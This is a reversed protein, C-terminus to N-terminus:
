PRPAGRSLVGDVGLTSGARGLMLVPFVLLYALGAQGTLYPMSFMSSGAFQFSAVMLFGLLAALPTLFGAVLLLGLVLEGTAVLRAFLAPHQGVFGLFKAVLANAPHQSWEAFTAQLIEPHGFWKLKHLGALFLSLGTAIRLLALSVSFGRSVM